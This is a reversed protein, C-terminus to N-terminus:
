QLRRAAAQLAAWSGPWAARMEVRRDLELQVLRGATVTAGPTPDAWLRIREEAVCADQHEGLVDQADKAVSVFVLGKKGLEPAALEAAYRVRKIAIRVAHLEDDAPVPPLAAVERLTRKWQRAWIKRLATEDGTLPPDLVGDLRDLLALYRPSSLASVVAQRAALQEAALETLLGKGVAADSGLSSVDTGIREVLVDLDRAPGLERGLWGLEARLGEVWDRDLLVRGARLFARLRRTAVRMQHLEEVDAGLRTGPDHLLLRRRQEQLAFALEVSPAAGAPAVLEAPPAPLDLARFLKPRQDHEDPGAGAGARRLDKRLSRLGAEDGDVLEVEIEHFRRTIHQGDLVAVSDETIEAGRARVGERRTRLRAVPAVPRGRLLAVLLALMVEPPRAPPGSQELEIRAIGKPLKLQWLGAGDEVRHRFTVGHRALALDDTDHYTSVFTRSPLPRGGLEPMVFGEKATLKLERELHQKV